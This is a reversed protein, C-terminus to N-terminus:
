RTTEKWIKELDALNMKGTYLGYDNEAFRRLVVLHGQREMSWVNGSHKKWDGDQMVTSATNFLRFYSVVEGEVDLLAHAVKNGGIHCIDGKKFAGAPADFPRATLGLESMTLEAFAAETNCRYNKHHGETVCIRHQTTLSEVTLATTNTSTFTLIAFLAMAAMAFFGAVPRWAWSSSQRAEEREIQDYVKNLASRSRSKVDFGVPNRLAAQIERVEELEEACESCEACHAKISAREEESLEESEGDWVLNRLEECRM